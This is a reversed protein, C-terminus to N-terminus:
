IFILNLRVLVDDEFSLKTHFCRLENKVFERGKMFTERWRTEKNTNKNKTALNKGMLSANPLYKVCLTKWVHSEYTLTSLKKNVCALNNLDTWLFYQVINLLVDYPMDSLSVHIMKDDRKGVSYEQSPVSTAHVTLTDSEVSSMEPCANSESVKKNAFKKAKRKQAREQKDKDKKITEKILADVYNPPVAKKRGRSQPACVEEIIFGSTPVAVRTQHNSQKQKPKHKKTQRSHTKVPRMTAMVTQQHTNTDSSAKPDVMNQPHINSQTPKNPNPLTHEEESNEKLTNILRALLKNSGKVVEPVQLLKSEMVKNDQMPPWPATGTHQCAKCQHKLAQELEYSSKGRKRDLLFVQLQRLIASVSYASSWGTYPM